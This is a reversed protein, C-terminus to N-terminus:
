RVSTWLWYIGPELMPRQDSASVGLFKQALTQSWNSVLSRSEEDSDKTEQLLFDKLSTHPQEPFILKPKGKIKLMSAM